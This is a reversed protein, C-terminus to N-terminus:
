KDDKAAKLREVAEEFEKRTLKGDELQKKLLKRENKFDANLKSFYSAVKKGVEQATATAPLGLMTLLSNPDRGFPVFYYDPFM